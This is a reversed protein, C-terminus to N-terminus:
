EIGHAKEIARVFQMPVTALVKEYQYWIDRIEEYSLQKRQMPTEEFVADIATNKIVFYKDGAVGIGYAEKSKLKNWHAEADKYSDFTTVFAINKPKM